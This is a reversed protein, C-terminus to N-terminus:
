SRCPDPRARRRHRKPRRTLAKGMLLWMSLADPNKLLADVISELRRMTSATVRLKKKGM